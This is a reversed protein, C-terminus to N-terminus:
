EITVHGCEVAGAAAGPQGAGGSTGAAGVVVPYVGPPTLPNLNIDLEDRVIEGPRWSSTPWLRLAETPRHLRDGWVGEPGVVQATAIYDTELQRAAQWWLRLHVWGSPPHMAADQAAVVPTLLECAVLRLGPALEAAPYVAGPALSPLEEFKGQLMYGTLKIGAPYQETVLPFRQTLWGEVLRADDVGELHSQTLWLTSAGFEVIGNLPPAVIQDIEEARLTAGYPFFIPLQDFTMDQRVYWELPQRTYDVHAVVAAPLGPSATQYDLIYGAAARWNERARVPTWISPLAAALILAALCAAAWGVFRYQAFRVCRFREIMVACARGAAWLIFPALFVLYRDEAFISRSRGLLLNAILLPMGIWILLWTRDFSQRSNVASQSGSVSREAEPGCDATWLGCDVSAPAIKPPWSLVLGLVVLAGMFILVATQVPAPWDVRWFSDAQLLHLLNAGLNAFPRGPTSEAGSVSWANRALPLFLLGATALAIVGEGFRPWNRDRWFLALLTLGAAPLVFASFLYSYLAAEVALIAVIWWLLRHLGRPQTWARWLAFAFWVIGTTAPQFMRLEQSYWVLLPSLAVFLGALRGATRTGTSSALCLIGWVTLAGLVSGLARLAADNYGLGALNLLHQWLHLASYYAPPHKEEILPFTKAVIFSLDSSAWRLSVAEDFWVSHYSLQWLRIALGLLV